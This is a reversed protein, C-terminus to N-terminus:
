PKSAPPKTCPTRPEETRTDNTTKAPDKPIRQHAQAYRTPGQPDRQILQSSRPTEPLDTPTGSFHWPSGLPAKSITSFCIAKIESEYIDLILM